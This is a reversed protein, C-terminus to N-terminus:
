RGGVASVIMWASNVSHFDESLTGLGSVQARDRQQRIGRYSCAEAAMSSRAAKPARRIAEAGGSNTSRASAQWRILGCMEGPATYNILGTASRGSPHRRQHDHRRRAAPSVGRPPARCSGHRLRRRGQRGDHQHENTSTLKSSGILPDHGSRRAAPGPRQWTSSGRRVREAIRWLRHRGSLLRPTISSSSGGSLDDACRGRRRERDQLGHRQGM